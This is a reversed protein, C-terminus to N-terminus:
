HAIWNHQPGKSAICVLWTIVSACFNSISESIGLANTEGSLASGICVMAALLVTPCETMTWTPAHIIPQIIQFGSFYVGVLQRLLEMGSSINGDQPEHPPPLQQCSLLRILGDAASTQTEQRAIPRPFVEHLRPLPFRSVRAEQGQEFPWPLFNPRSQVFPLTPAFGEPLPHFAAPGSAPMSAEIGSGRNLDLNISPVEFDLWDFGSGRFDLDVGADISFSDGECVPSCSQSSFLVPDLHHDTGALETASSPGFDYFKFINSVSANASKLRTEPDGYAVHSADM